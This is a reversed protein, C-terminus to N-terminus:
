RVCHGGGVCTVFSLGVRSLAVGYEPAPERKACLSSMIFTFVCIGAIIGKQSLVVVSRVSGWSGGPGTEEARLPRQPGNPRPLSGPPRSTVKTNEADMQSSVRSRPSPHQAKRSARAARVRESSSPTAVFAAHVAVAIDAGALCPAWRPRWYRRMPSSSSLHFIYMRERCVYLAWHTSTRQM